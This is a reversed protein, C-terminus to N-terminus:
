TKSGRQALYIACAYALAFQPASVYYQFVFVLPVAFIFIRSYPDARTSVVRTISIWIFPVALIGAQFLLVGYGSPVGTGSIDILFPFHEILVPRADSWTQASLGRPFFGSEGVDLLGAIAGGIRMNTSYDETILIIPNSLLRGLLTLLRNGEGVGLVWNGLGLLIVGLFLTIVLVLVRPRYVTLAIAAALTLVLAGNASRALLMVSIASLVITWRPQRLLMACGGLLIMHFAHHTPEPALGIVGRGSAAIDGALSGWEGLLQTMFSANLLTQTMGIWFWILISASVLQGVRRGDWELLTFCAMTLILPSVYNLLYKYEQVNRFPACTLLFLVIGLGAFSVLAGTDPWPMRRIGSARSVGIVLLGLIMAYPQTYSGLPVLQVYPFTISLVTLVLLATRGMAVWPTHTLPQGQDDALLANAM